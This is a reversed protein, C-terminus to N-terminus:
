VAIWETAFRRGAVACEIRIPGPRSVPFTFCGVEDATTTAVLGAENCLRVEGPEPPILQGEIGADGLEIEVRLEGLAFVLNRPAGPLAGRVAATRDLESDYLLVALDRDPDATRWARVAHAAARVQVELPEPRLADGIDLLLDDDDNWDRWPM